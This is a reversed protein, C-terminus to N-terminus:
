ADKPHKSIKRKGTINLMKGEVLVATVLSGNFKKWHTNKIKLM